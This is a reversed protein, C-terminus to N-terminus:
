ISDCDSPIEWDISKLIDEDAGIRRDGWASVDEHLRIAPRRQCATIEWSNFHVWIDGRRSTRDGQISGPTSRDAIRTHQDLWSGLYAPRIADADDAALTLGSPLLGLVLTHILDSLHM